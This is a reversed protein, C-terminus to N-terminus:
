QIACMFFPYSFGEFLYLGQEPSSAKIYLEEGPKDPLFYTHFFNNNITDYTSIKEKFIKIGYVGIKENNKYNFSYTRDLDEKKGESKMVGSIHLFGKSKSDIALVYLADLTYKKEGDYVDYVVDAECKKILVEQQTSKYTIYGSLGFFIITAFIIVPLLVKSKRM